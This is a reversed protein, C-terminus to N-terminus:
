KDCIVKELTRILNHLEEDIESDTIFRSAAITRIRSFLVELVEHFATKNLEKDTIEQNWEYGLEIDARRNLIDFYTVAMNHEDNDEKDQLNVNVEWGYIGFYEIWYGVYGKFKKIDLKTMKM